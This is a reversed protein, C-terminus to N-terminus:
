SEVHASPLDEEALLGTEELIDEDRGFVPEEILTPEEEEGKRNL